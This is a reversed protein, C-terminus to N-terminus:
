DPWSARKELYRDCVSRLETRVFSREHGGYVIRVAMGRLREMTQRYSSISAGPFKDLLPADVFVTDGSFLTGSAEEWLGISGPTHGPLHLVEIRRDGLDIVDGEDVLRTPKCPATAFADADFGPSPLADLMVDRLTFREAAMESRFEPEYDAAHLGPPDAPRSLNAAEAPHALREEFEYLGGMHDSHAHTVVALIPVDSLSAVLERLPALGFGTDVLLSRESGRILWINSRLFRDLWPETLFTLGEEVPRVSFWEPAPMVKAM